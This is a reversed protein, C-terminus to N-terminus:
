TRRSATSSTTWITLIQNISRQQERRKAQDLSPNGGIRSVSKDIIEALQELGIEKFAELADKWVIGTSNLYFQSHGGNNVDALYWAIAHIYRQERSFPRLSNAYEQEGDMNVAWWVPGIILSWDGKNIVEDNITLHEVLRKM